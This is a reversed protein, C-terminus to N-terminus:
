QQAVQGLMNALDKQAELLHEAMFDDSSPLVFDIMQLRALILSLDDATPNEPDAFGAENLDEMLDERETDPLNSDFITGLWYQEADPDLGVLALAERAAPDQLTEDPSTPGPAPTQNQAPAPKPKPASRKTLEKVTEVSLIPQVAVPPTEARPAPAPAEQPPITSVVRPSRHSFMVALGCIMLAALGIIKAKTNM